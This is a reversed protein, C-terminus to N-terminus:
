SKNKLGRKEKELYYFNVYKIFNSFASGISIILGNKGDLFGKKFFYFKIFTSLPNLILKWTKFKEGKRLLENAGYKGYYNMKDFYQYLSNYSYHLLDSKLHGLNKSDPIDIGEHLINNNFDCFNKNFLRTVRGPYWGTHRVWEGLFFTKRPLDYAIKNGTTSINKIEEKLNEPIEEDADIWLIWDYTSHKVALRKNETYGDWNATVIKVNPFHSAIQITNDTSNSDVMIVEDTWTLSSLCKKINNEENYTIIIASIKL